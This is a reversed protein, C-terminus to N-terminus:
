RRARSLAASSAPEGARVYPVFDGLRLRRLEIGSVPDFSPPSTAAASSRARDHPDRLARGVDLRPCGGPPRNVYVRGSPGDFLIAGRRGLPQRALDRQNVCAVPPGPPRPRRLEAALEAEGSPAADATPAARRQTCGGALGASALM